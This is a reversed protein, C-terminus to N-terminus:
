RPAGTRTGCAPSSRGAPILRRGMGAGAEEIAANVRHALEVDLATVANVRSTRLSSPWARTLAGIHPGRGAERKLDALRRLVRELNRSSSRRYPRAHAPRGVVPATAGARRAARGGSLGGPTRPWQLDPSPPTGELADQPVSKHSGASARTRERLRVRLRMVTVVSPLLTM